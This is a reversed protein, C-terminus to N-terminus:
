LPCNKKIIIVVFIVCWKIHKKIGFINKVINQCCGLIILIFFVYLFYQIILMASLREKMKVIQKRQCHKIKIIELNSHYKKYLKIFKLM